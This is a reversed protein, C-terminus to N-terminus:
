QSNDQNPQRTETNFQHKSPHSNRQSGIIRQSKIHKPIQGYYNHNPRQRSTPHYYIPREKPTQLSSTRQKSNTKKEDGKSRHYSLKISKHTETPLETTRFAEKLVPFIKLHNTDDTNSKLDKQPFSHETTSLPLSSMNVVWEPEM